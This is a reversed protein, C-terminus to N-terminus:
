KNYVEILALSELVRKILLHNNGKHLFFSNVLLQKSLKNSKSKKRITFKTQNTEITQNNNNVKGTSLLPMLSTRKHSEKKTESDGKKESNTYLSM